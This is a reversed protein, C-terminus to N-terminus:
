LVIVKVQVSGGLNTGDMISLTYTGTQNLTLEVVNVGNQATQLDPYYEGAGNPYTLYGYPQMNSSATLTIRIKQGSSGSFSAEASGGGGPVTVNSDLLVVTELIEVKVQVAGGRNTGDMIALAYAGTQNLTLEISNMGNQATQLDPYYEGTGNPYTLYGYPQMDSSATLTIRIKQGNNASFSVEASGGGGAVTVSQDVLTTGPATPSGNDDDDGCGALIMTFVLCFSLLFLLFSRAKM